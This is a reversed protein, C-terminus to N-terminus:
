VHFMPHLRSAEDIMIPQSDRRTTVTASSDHSTNEHYQFSPKGRQAPPIGFIADTNVGHSCPRNLGAAATAM